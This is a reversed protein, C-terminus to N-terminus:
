SSKRDTANPLLIEPSKSGGSSSLSVDYGHNSAIGEPNIRQLNYNKPCMKTYSILYEELPSVTVGLLM